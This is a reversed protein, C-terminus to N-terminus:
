EVFSVLLVEAQFPNVDINDDGSSLCEASNKAGKSGSAKCPRSARNARVSPSEGSGTSVDLAKTVRSILLITSKKLSSQM